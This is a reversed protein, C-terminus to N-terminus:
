VSFHLHNTVEMWTSTIQLQPVDVGAVELEKRNHTQIRALMMLALKQNKFIQAENIRFSWETISCFYLKSTLYPQYILWIQHKM